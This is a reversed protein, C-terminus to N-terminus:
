PLPISKDQQRGYLIYQFYRKKAERSKPRLRLRINCNKCHPAPDTGFEVKDYYKMCRTCWVKGLIYTNTGSTM